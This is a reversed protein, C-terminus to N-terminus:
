EKKIIARLKDEIVFKKNQLISQTLEEAIHSDQLKETLKEVIVDKKFTQSVKKGYMVIQGEKTSVSDMDNEVMYGKIGKELEALKTRIDKSQKSLLKLEKQLRLYDLFQEQIDSM